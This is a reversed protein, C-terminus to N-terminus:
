ERRRGVLLGLCFCVAAVSGIVTWPNEHVYGNTAQAAKRTTEAARKQWEAAAQQFNKLRDTLGPSIEQNLETGANTEQLNQKM